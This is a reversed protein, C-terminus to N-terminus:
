EWVIFVAQFDVTEDDLLPLTIWPASYWIPRLQYRIVEWKWAPSRSWAIYRNKRERLETTEDTFPSWTEPRMIQCSSNFSITKYLLFAQYLAQCVPALWYIGPTKWNDRVPTPSTIITNDCRSNDRNGPSSKNGSWFDKAQLLSIGQSGRISVSHSAREKIGGEGVSMQSKEMSVSPSRWLLFVCVCCVCVHMYVCVCMYVCKVPLITSHMQWFDVVKSWPCVHSKVKGWWPPSTSDCCFNIKQKHSIICLEREETSPFIWTWIRARLNQWLNGAEQKMDASKTEGCTDVSCKSHILCPTLWSSHWQASVHVVEAKTFRRTQHPSSIILM